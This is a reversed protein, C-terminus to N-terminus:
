GHKARIEFPLVGHYEPGFEAGLWKLWRVARDNGAVTVGYLTQYELLMDAIARQSHRIFMFVHSQLHESTWVWIYARDSLLSPPQVGWCALVTDDDLGVWVRSSSQMASSMITRDKVPLKAFHEPYILDWAEQGTLRVIHATM